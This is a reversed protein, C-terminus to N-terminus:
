TKNESKRKHVYTSRPCIVATVHLFLPMINLPTYATGASAEGRSVLTENLHFGNSSRVLGYM